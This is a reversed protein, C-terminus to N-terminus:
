EKWPANTAAPMQSLRSLKWFRLARDTDMMTGGEGRSSVIEQAASELV